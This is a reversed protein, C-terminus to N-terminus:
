FSNHTIKEEYPVERSIYKDFDKYIMPHVM